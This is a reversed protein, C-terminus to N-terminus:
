VGDVKPITSSGMAAVRDVKNATSTGTAAVGGFIDAKSNGRAGKRKESVSVGDVTAITSTGRSAAVGDVKNATSTGTASM